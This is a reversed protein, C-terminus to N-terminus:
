RDHRSVVSLCHVASSCDTVRGIVKAAIDGVAHLRDILDRARDTGIGILLGGCTQPDFLLGFKHRRSTSVTVELEGQIQRNAPSLTSELGERSLTKAGPLSRVADLFLQAACGSARLMELLHGALGFGSVDTAALVGFEDCVEAAAANSCLMTDILPQWWRAKLRAQMHAALLVGTGLPKTLVLADGPRLNGKARIPGQQEALITYGITIQPGEITHGGALTAGM